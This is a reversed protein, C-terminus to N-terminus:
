MGTKRSNTGSKSNQLQRARQLKDYVDSSEASLGFLNDRHAYKELKRREEEVRKEVYDLRKNKPVTKYKDYCWKVIIVALTLVGSIIAIWQEM